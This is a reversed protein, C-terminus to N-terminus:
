EFYECIPFLKIMCDDDSWRYGKNEYEYLVICHEKQGKNNPEGPNWDSYQPLPEGSVMWFWYGQALNTGATWFEGNRIGLKMIAAKIQTNDNESEISALRGGHAMCHHFAAFFNVKIFNEVRYVKNGSPRRNTLLSCSQPTPAQEQCGTFPNGSFGPKCTCYPVHDHVECTTNGQCPGPCPYKCKQDICTLVKNCDNNNNCDAGVIVVNQIECHIYDINVLLLCWLLQVIEQTHSGM